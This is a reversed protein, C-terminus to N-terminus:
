VHADPRAHAGALVFASTWPQAGWSQVAPKEHAAPMAHAAVEGTASLLPQM